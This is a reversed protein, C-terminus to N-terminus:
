SGGLLAMSCLIIFMLRVSLILAIRTLSSVSSVSTTTNAFLNFCSEAPCIALIFCSQYFLSIVSHYRAIQLPPAYFSEFPSIFNCITYPYSRIPQSIVSILQCYPIPKQESIQRTEHLLITPVERVISNRMICM